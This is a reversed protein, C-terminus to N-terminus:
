SRSSRPSGSSFRPNHPRDHGYKAIGVLDVAMEAPQEFADDGVLREGLNCRGAAKHRTKPQGSGVTYKDHVKGPPRHQEALSPDTARGTDLELHGGIGCM